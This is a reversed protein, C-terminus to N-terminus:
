KPVVARILIAIDGTKAPWVQMSMDLAHVVLDHAVETCPVLLDEGMLVLEERNALESFMLLEPVIIWPSDILTSELSVRLTAETSLTEVAVVLEIHMTPVLVLSTMDAVSSILSPLLLVKNVVVREFFM